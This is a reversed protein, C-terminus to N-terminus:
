ARCRTGARAAAQAASHAVEVVLLLLPKLAEDAADLRALRGVLQGSAGRAPRRGLRGTRVRQLMGGLIPRHRRAAPQDGLLGGLPCAMREVSPVLDHTAGLGPLEGLADVDEQGFVLPEEIDRRRLIGEHAAQANGVADQRRPLHQAEGVGGVGETAAVGVDGRAGIQLDALDRCAMGDVQQERHLIQTERRAARPRVIDAVDGAARGGADIRLLEVVRPRQAAGHVVVDEIMALHVSQRAFEVDGEVAAAAHRDQFVGVIDAEHRGFYGAPRPTSGPM